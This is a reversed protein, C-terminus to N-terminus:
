HAVAGFPDNFPWEIPSNYHKEYLKMTEKDIYDSKVVISYVYESFWEDSMQLHGPDQGSNGYGWSNEIRWKIYEEKGNEEKVNDEKVNDEKIDVGVLLMAHTAGSLRMDMREGKNLKFSTGLSKEFDYAKTDLLDREVNFCKDVDCSFWIPTEEQISESAAKKMVDLPVNFMVNRKGGVMSGFHKVTYTKYYESQKRPDHILVVHSDINYRPEILKQYFDKATFDFQTNTAGMEEPDATHERFKWDFKVPPEGMFRTILKFMLPMMINDKYKRLKNDDGKMNRLDYTFENLKDILVRNMESTASTNYCEDYNSRPMVGYKKVLDRFWTWTGGDDIISGSLFFDMLPDTIIVNKLEIMKELFYNCCEIKHYYFLHAHSFELDRDINYDMILRYRMSNLGSFLWCRGSDGQNTPQLRSKLTHNYTYDLQKLRDRCESLYTVPVCSLINQMCENTKDNNYTKSLQNYTQDNLVSSDKLLILKQELKLNKSTKNFIENNINKAAKLVKNLEKDSKTRKSKTNKKRNVTM